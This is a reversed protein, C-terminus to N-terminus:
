ELPGWYEHTLSRNQEAHRKWTQATECASKPIFRNGKEIAWFLLTFENVSSFFGLPRQMVGNAKFRVEFLGDGSGSLAKCYDSHWDHRSLQALNVLRSKFRARLQPTGTDHTTKIDGV